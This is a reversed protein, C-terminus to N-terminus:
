EGFLDKSWDAKFSPDRERIYREAPRLVETHSSGMFLPPVSDDPPSSYKGEGVVAIWNGPRHTILVYFNERQALILEPYAGPPTLNQWWPKMTKPDLSSAMCSAIIVELFGFALGAGGSVFRTLITV